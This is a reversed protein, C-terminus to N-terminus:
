SHNLPSPEAVWVWDKRLGRAAAPRSPSVLPRGHWTSATASRESQRPVLSSHAQSAPAPFCPSARLIARDRVPSMGSGGRPAPPPPPAMGRLDQRRQTNERRFNSHRHLGARDGLPGPHPRPAPRWDIPHFSAALHARRPPGPLSASVPLTTGCARPGKETSSDEDRIAPSHVHGWVDGSCVAHELSRVAPQSYARDM